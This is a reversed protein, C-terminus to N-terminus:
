YNLNANKHLLGNQFLKDPPFLPTGLLAVPPAVDGPLGNPAHIRSDSCLPLLSQPRLPHVGSHRLPHACSLSLSPCRLPM